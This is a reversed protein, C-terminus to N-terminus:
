VPMKLFQEIIRRSIAYSDFGLAVDRLHQADKYITNMSPAKKGDAAALDQLVKEAAQNSGAAHSRQLKVVQKLKDRM